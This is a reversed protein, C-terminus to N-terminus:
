ACTEHCLRRGHLAGECVPARAPPYRQRLDGAGPLIACPVAGALIVALSDSRHPRVPAACAGCRARSAMDLTHVSTDGSEQGASGQGDILYSNAAVTRGRRVHTGEATNVMQAHGSLVESPASPSSSQSGGCGVVFPGRPGRVGGRINARRQGNDAYTRPVRESTGWGRRLETVGAGECRSASTQHRPSLLSCWRALPCCRSALLGLCPSDGPGQM